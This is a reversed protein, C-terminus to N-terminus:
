IHPYSGSAFDKVSQKHQNEVCMIGLAPWDVCRALVFDLYGSGFLLLPFDLFGVVGVRVAALSDVDGDSSKDNDVESDMDDFSEDCFLFFAQLTTLRIKLAAVGTRDLM